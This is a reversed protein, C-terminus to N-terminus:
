RRTANTNGQQHTCMGKPQKRVKPSSKRKKEKINMPRVEAIEDRANNM